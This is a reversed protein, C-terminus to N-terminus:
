RQWNWSQRIAALVALPATEARLTLPGLGALEVSDSGEALAREEDSWGGEPGILVTLPEPGASELPPYDLDLFLTRGPRDAALVEELTGAPRLEPLWLTECQESASRLIRQMHTLKNARRREDAKVNARDADLLWIATAGLEVSKQVVADLASGKLWSQVLVLPAPRDESRTLATITASAKRGDIIRLEALWESGNGDFLGIAAGSRLRLVRGLYHAESTTLDIITGPETGSLRGPEHSGSEALCLRHKM